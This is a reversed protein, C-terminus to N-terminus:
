KLRVPTFLLSDSTSNTGNIYLTIVFPVSCKWFNITFLSFSICSGVSCKRFSYNLFNNEWGTLKWQSRWPYGQCCEFLAREPSRAQCSTVANSSNFTQRIKTKSNEFITQFLFSMFKIKLASQLFGMPMTLNPWVRGRRIWWAKM